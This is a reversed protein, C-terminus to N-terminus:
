QCIGVMRRALILMEILVPGPNTGSQYREQFSDFPTAMLSFMTDECEKNGYQISTVWATRIEKDLGSSLAAIEESYPLRAPGKIAVITFKKTWSSGSQKFRYNKTGEKTEVFRWITTIPYDPPCPSQSPALSQTAKEVKKLNKWKGKVKQQISGKIKRTDCTQFEWTNPAVVHVYNESQTVTITVPDKAHAVSGNTSLVVSLGIVFVAISRWCHWLKIRSPIQRM